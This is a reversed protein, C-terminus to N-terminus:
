PGVNPITGPLKSQALRNEAQELQGAVDQHLRALQERDMKATWQLYLQVLNPFKGLAKDDGSRLILLVAYYQGIWSRLLPAIPGFATDADAVGKTFYVSWAELRNLLTIVRGFGGPPLAATWSRATALNKKDPELEVSDKPGLFPKVKGAAFLDLAATNLPIIEKAIEEMRQIACLKAERDARHVIEERTIRLDERAVALSQLGRVAILTLAISFITTVVVAGAEIAAWSEAAGM